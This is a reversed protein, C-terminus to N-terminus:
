KKTIIVKEITPMADEKVGIILNLGEVVKGFEVTEKDYAKNDKLNIFFLAPNVSSSSSKAMSIVGTENTLGNDFEGLIHAVKANKDGGYLKGGLLQYFSTGNYIGKEALEVFKGVAKPANKSDLEVKLTGVGKLQIEAVYEPAPKEYNVAAVIGIIGAILLVLVAVSIIIINRKRQKEQKAKLELREKRKKTLPKKNAM